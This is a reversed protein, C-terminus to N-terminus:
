IVPQVKLSIAGHCIWGAANWFVAVMPAGAAGDDREVTMISVKRGIHPSHSTFKVGRFIGASGGAM